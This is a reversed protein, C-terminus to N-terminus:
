EAKRTELRGSLLLGYIIVGTFLTILTFIDGLTQPRDLLNAIIAILSVVLSLLWLPRYNTM